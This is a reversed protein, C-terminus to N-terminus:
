NEEAVILRRKFGVGVVTIIGTTWISVLSKELFIATGCGKIQREEYKEGLNVSSAPMLMTSPTPTDGCCTPRDVTLIVLVPDDLGQSESEIFDMARDDIKM